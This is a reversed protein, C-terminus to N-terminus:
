LDFFEAGVLVSGEDNAMFQGGGIERVQKTRGLHQGQERSEIEVAAKVAGKKQIHKPHVTPSPSLVQGKYAKVPIHMHQSIKFALSEEGGEGGYCTLLRISSFDREQKAATAIEIPKQADYPIGDFWIQGGGPSGHAVINFRPAGHYEDYFTFSEAVGVEDFSGIKLNSAGNLRGKVNEIYRKTYFGQRGRWTAREVDDAIFIQPGRELMTPSDDWGMNLMQRRRNLLGEFLSEPVPGFPFNYHLLM